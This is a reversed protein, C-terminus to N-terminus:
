PAGPTGARPASAAPAAEWARSSDQLGTGVEGRLIGTLREGLYAHTAEDYHPDYTFRLSRTRGLRQLEPALDHVALGPVSRAYGITYREDINLAIARCGAARCEEVFRALIAQSRRRQEEDRDEVLPGTRPHRRTRPPSPVSPDGHRLRWLRVQYWCLAALQSRELLPHESSGPLDARPLYVTDPDGAAHLRVSEVADPVRLRGNAYMGMMHRGTVARHLVLLLVDPAYRRGEVLYALLMNDLGYGPVGMNVVEVGPLRQAPVDTFRRGLAIGSGFTFSDGLAVIRTVDPTKEYDHEGDRLGKSNIQYTQTFDATVAVVRAGPRFPPYRRWLGFPTSDAWMAPPLQNPSRLAAAHLRYDIGRWWAELRVVTEAALLALATAALLTLVAFWRRPRATRARAADKSTCAAYWSGV